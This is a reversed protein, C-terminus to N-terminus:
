QRSGLRWGAPSFRSQSFRMTYPRWMERFPLMPGCGGTTRDRQINRESPAAQKIRQEHWSSLAM